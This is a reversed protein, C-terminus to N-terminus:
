ILFGTDYWLYYVKRSYIATTHLFPLSLFSLGGMCCTCLTVNCSSIGLSLNITFPQVPSYSSSLILVCVSSFTSSVHVLSFSSLVVLFLISLLTGIVFSFYKVSLPRPSSCAVHLLFIMLWVPSWIHRSFGHSFFFVYFSPISVPLCFEEFAPKVLSIYQHLIQDLDRGREAIDRVVPSSTCCFVVEANWAPCNSYIYSLPSAIFLSHM